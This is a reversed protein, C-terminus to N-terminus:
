IHILSLAFEIDTPLVNESGIRVEDFYLVDGTETSRVQLTAVAVGDQPIGSTANLPNVDSGIGTLTLSSVVNGGVVWEAVLGTDDITAPLQITGNLTVEDRQFRDRIDSGANVVRFNHFDAGSLLEAPAGLTTRYEGSSDGVM